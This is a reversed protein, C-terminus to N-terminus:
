RDEGAKILNRTAIMVKATPKLGQRQLTRERPTFKRKGDILAIALGILEREAHNIALGQDEGTAKRLPGM